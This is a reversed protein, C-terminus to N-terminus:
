KTKVFGCLKAIFLIHMCGHKQKTDESSEGEERERLTVPLKFKLYKVTNCISFGHFKLSDFLFDM